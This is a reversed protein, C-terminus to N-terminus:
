RGGRALYTKLEELVPDRGAKWDASTLAVPMSVPVYRRRDTPFSDQWWRSSISLHIGSWPLEVSTDEGTFNPRSAAPSGLFVAETARDLHNVLNQCASFVGPGTLVFTRNGPDNMEHWAVLRVIPWILFNNGGNNHRLDLILNRAGARRIETRLTRSWESLTPAGEPDRVQNLQAYVADLEPRAEHWYTQARHALWLPVAGGPAPPLPREPMEFPVGALTVTRTGSGDRITLTAEALSRAAGIARLACPLSLYLPGLMDIGYENDRSVITRLGERLEAASRGGIAVVQLGVLTEHGPRAGVVFLGDAFFHMRIPLMGKFDVRPTSMPYLVTHGDALHAVLAKQIEMAMAVDDLDATRGELAALAAAFEPSHAPRDPAAHLRRAEELLFDLDERWGAARDADPHASFGALRRFEPVDRLAKFADDSKLSPREHYGADLVRRLCALASDRQGSVAAQRALRLWAPVPAVFGSGILEPLLRNADAERGLTRYAGALRVVVEPRGPAIARVQELCRVAGAVDGAAFLSDAARDLELVRHPPLAAFTTSTAPVM